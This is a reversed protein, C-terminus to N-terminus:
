QEELVVEITEEGFDREARLEVDGDARVVTFTMDRVFTDAEQDFTVTKAQDDFSWSGALSVDLDDGDEAGDPVFLQGTTSGDANLDITLEAGRALQDATEGGVTLDFTTARYEGIVDPKEIPEFGTGVDDDCATAGAALLLLSLTAPLRVHPSSIKMTM